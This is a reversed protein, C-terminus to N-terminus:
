NSKGIQEKLRREIDEKTHPNNKVEGKVEDLANCYDSGNKELENCCDRVHRRVSSIPLIVRWYGDKEKVVDVQTLEWSHPTPMLVHSLYANIKWDGLQQKEHTAIDDTWQLTAIAKDDGKKTVDAVRFSAPFPQLLYLATACKDSKVGHKKMAESLNDVSKALKTADKNMKRIWENYEGGCFRAAAEYNRKELAKKLRDIAENPTQAYGYGEMKFFWEKVPGVRSAPVFYFTGAAAVAGVVLVVLLVKAAHM